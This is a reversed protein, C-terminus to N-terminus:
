LYPEPHADIDPFTPAAEDHSKGPSVVHVTSGLRKRPPLAPAIANEPPLQPLLISDRQDREVSPVEVVPRDPPAMSYYGESFVQQKSLTENSNQRSVQPSGWEAIVSTKNGESISPAGDNVSPFVQEGSPSSSGLKSNEYQIFFTSIAVISSFVFAIISLALGPGYELDSPSIAIPISFVIGLNTGNFNNSVIQAYILWSIFFLLSSISSSITASLPTAHSIPSFIDLRRNKKDVLSKSSSPVATSAPDHTQSLLFLLNFLSFLLGVCTFSLAITGGTYFFQLVPAIDSFLVVTCTKSNIFDPNTVNLSSPPPTENPGLNLCYRFETTTASGRFIRGDIDNVSYTYWPSFTSIVAAFLALFSCLISISRIPRFSFAHKVEQFINGPIVIVRSTEKRSEKMTEVLSEVNSTTQSPLQVPEVLRVKAVRDARSPVNISAPAAETHSETENGSETDIRLGYTPNKIM